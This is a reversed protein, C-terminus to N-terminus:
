VAPAEITVDSINSIDGEPLELWHFLGHITQNTTESVALLGFGPKLILNQSRSPLVDTHEYVTNSCWFDAFQQAFVPFVALIDTRTQCQPDRGGSYKNSLIDTITALGANNFGIDFSIGSTTRNVYLAKEIIAIVGSDTPNWLQVCSYNGETQYRRAEGIFARGLETERFAEKSRILTNVEVGEGHLVVWHPACIILKVIEDAMPASIFFQKFPAEIRRGPYLDIYDASNRDLQIRLRSQGEMYYIKEGQIEVREQAIAAASLSLTYVTYNFAREEKPNTFDGPPLPRVKELETIESKNQETM